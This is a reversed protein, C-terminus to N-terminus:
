EWFGEPMPLGALDDATLPAKPQIGMRELVAGLQRTHQASHWTSRELLHHATVDGFFTKIMRSLTPDDVGAWWSELRAWVAGGYSAIQDGTQLDDGVRNSAIKPTYEAGDWAELFAEGIRFLHFNLQRIYRDRNPIVAENYRETPFQRAHRQAAAFVRRYKGFLQEPPLMTVGREKGVFKAVGDLNQGFVYQGGKALVPVKRVGFERLLLEGGGPDNEV